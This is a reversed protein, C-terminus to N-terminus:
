PECECLASLSQTCDQDDYQNSSLAAICDEGPPPGKNDPQGPAWPLYTAPQGRVTVYMGEVVEDDIGVWIAPQGGANVIAALEAADDPIALYTIGGLAACTTRQTTFDAAPVAFYLHGPVGPLPLFGPSCGMGGEGPLGGDSTVCQNTLSGSYSTYRRGDVCNPDPVSCFGNAECEGNAGCESSDTCHFETDRLCGTALVLVAIALKM